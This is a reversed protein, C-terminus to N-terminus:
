KNSFEATQRTGRPRYYAAELEAPPIDSFQPSSTGHNLM